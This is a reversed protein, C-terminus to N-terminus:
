SQGGSTSVSCLIYNQVGDITLQFLILSTCKRTTEQFDAQGALSMERCRQLVYYMWWGPLRPNVLHELNEADSGSKLLACSHDIKLKSCKISIVTALLWLLCKIRRTGQRLPSSITPSIQLISQWIVKCVRWQGARHHAHFWSREKESSEDM